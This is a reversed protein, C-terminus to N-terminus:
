FIGRSGNEIRHFTICLGFSEVKFHFRKRGIRSVKCYVFLWNLIYEYDYVRQESLGTLRRMRPYLEKLRNHLISNKETRIAPTREFKLENLNKHRNSELFTSLTAETVWDNSSVHLSTLSTFSESSALVELPSAQSKASIESSVRMGYCGKLKLTQLKALTNVISSVTTITLKLCDTKTMAVLCYMRSLNLYGIQPNRKMICIISNDILAKCGSFNLSTINTCRQTM